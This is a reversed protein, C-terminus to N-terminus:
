FSCKVEQQLIKAATETAARLVAKEDQDDAGPMGRLPRLLRSFLKDRFEEICTQKEELSKTLANTYSLDSLYHRAEQSRMDGSCRVLNELAEQLKTSLDRRNLHSLPKGATQWEKKLLQMASSRKLTDREWNEKAEKVKKDLNQEVRTNLRAVCDKHEKDQVLECYGSVLELLNKPVKSSRLEALALMKADLETICIDDSMM